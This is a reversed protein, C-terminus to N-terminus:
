ASKKEVFSYRVLVWWSAIAMSLEGGMIFPGKYDLINWWGIWYAAYCSLISTTWLACGLVADCWMLILSRKNTLLSWMMVAGQAFFATGWMWEPAITAMYLYTVRANPALKSPDPFVESPLLFGIGILVAGLAMYFRLALMDTRFALHIFRCSLKCCLPDSCLPLFRM